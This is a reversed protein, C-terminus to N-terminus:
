KKKSIGYLIRTVEVLMKLHGSQFISFDAEVAGIRKAPEGTNAPVPDLTKLDSLHSALVYIILHNM